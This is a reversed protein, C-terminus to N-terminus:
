LTFSMQQMLVSLDLFILYGGAILWDINSAIKFNISLALNPMTQVSNENQDLSTIRSSAEKILLM